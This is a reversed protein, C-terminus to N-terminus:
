VEGTESAIRVGLATASTLIAVSLGVGHMRFAAKGRELKAQM